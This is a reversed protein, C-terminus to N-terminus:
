TSKAPSRAPGSVSPLRSLEAEVAQAYAKADLGCKGIIQPVLGGDQTALAYLLHLTDVQQHGRSIALNQAESLAAQSKQTLKNPDM